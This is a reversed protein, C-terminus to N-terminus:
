VFVDGCMKQRPKPLVNHTSGLMATQLQEDGRAHMAYLTKFHYYLRMHNQAHALWNFEGGEMWLEHTAPINVLQLKGNAHWINSFMNVAAAVPAYMLVDDFFQTQADQDATSSPSVVSLYSKVMSRMGDLLQDETFVGPHKNAVAQMSILFKGFDYVALNPGAWEFDVLKVSMAKNAADVQVIQNAPTPDFHGLVLRMAMRGDTDASDIAAEAGQLYEHFEVAIQQFGDHFEKWLPMTHLESSNVAALATKRWERGRSLLIARHPPPFLESLRPSDEGDGKLMTHLGALEAGIYECMSALDQCPKQATLYEGLTPGPLMEEIRGLHVERGYYEASINGVVKACLGRKDLEGVLTNEFTGRKPKKKGFMRCIVSGNRAANLVRYVNNSHSPLRQVNVEDNAEWGPVTSICLQRVSDESGLRALDKKVACGIACHVMYRLILEEANAIGKYGPFVNADVVFYKGDHKDGQKAILIDFGFVRTGIRKGIIDRLYLAMQQFAPPWQDLKTVGGSLDLTPEVANKEVPDKGVKDKDVGKTLESSNFGVYGISGEVPM